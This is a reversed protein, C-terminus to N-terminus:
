NQDNQWWVHLVRCPEHETAIEPRTAYRVSAGACCGSGGGGGVNGSVGDGSSRGDGNFDSHTGSVTGGGGGGGGGSSSSSSGDGGDGGSTRLLILQQVARRSKSAMKRAHAAHRESSYEDSLPQAWATNARDLGHVLIARGRTMAHAGLSQQVAVCSVEEMGPPQVLDAVSPFGTRTLLDMNWMCLTNWPCTLATLPAYAAPLHLQRGEVCFSTKFRGDISSPLCSGPAGLSCSATAAVDADIAKDGTATEEGDLTSRNGDIGRYEHGPLAAGACLWPEVTATAPAPACTSKPYIKTSTSTSAAPSLTTYDSYNDDTATTTATAAITGKGDGGGDLIQLLPLVLARELRVEASAFLIRWKTTGLASASSVERRYQTSGPEEESVQFERAVALLQNLPSTVSTGKHSRTAVLKIACCYSVSLKEVLPALKVLAMSKDRDEDIGVLVAAAGLQAARSIFNNVRAIDNERPDDSPSRGYFRTAVVVTAFANSKNAHASDM